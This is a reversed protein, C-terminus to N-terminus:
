QPKESAFDSPFGCSLDCTMVVWACMGVMPVAQGEALECAAQMTRGPSRGDALGGKRPSRSSGM